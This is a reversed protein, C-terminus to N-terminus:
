LMLRCHHENFIGFQREFAFIIIHKCVKETVLDGFKVDLTYTMKQQQKLRLVTATVPESTPLSESTEDFAYIIYSYQIDTLVNKMDIFKTICTDHVYGITTFCNLNNKREIRYGCVASVGTWELLIANQTHLVVACLNTPFPLVAKGCVAESCSSVGATDVSAIRYWYDIGNQLESDTYSCTTPETITM